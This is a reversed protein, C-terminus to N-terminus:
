SYDNAINGLYVTGDNFVTVVDISNAATSLTAAGSPFKVATSGDTGFTATRLGTADQRIILTVTGGTPLNTIVFATNTDLTVKHVPALNCDVTITSSSTLVNIDDIYGVNFKVASNMAIQGTGQTQVVLDANSTRGTITNTFFNTAVTANDTLIWNTFTQYGNLTISGTGNADITIGTDSPTSINSGAITVAGITATYPNPISLDGGMTIAQTTMPAQVDVSGTGHAALQLDANGGNTTIKQDAINVFNVTLSSNANVTTFNGAARVATGIDTGDINGGNIDFLSGEVEVSGAEFKKGLTITEGGNGTNFTLYANSGEKITLATARNDTLAINIDNSSASIAATSVDGTVNGTVNGTVDGTLNGTVNGTVAGTLNGTVSTTTLVGTSPNYTFGTDTRPSLNGTAASVFLPFRTANTTNDATLTVASSYTATDANGTVNGTVNGTLPGSFSTATVAGTIGVTGTITTAGTINTAAQLEITGTGGPNLELNANTATSINNDNFILHDITTTGTITPTTIQPSTFTDASSDDGYLEAFNENIKKFATRLPDGTGDNATSGINITQKAM